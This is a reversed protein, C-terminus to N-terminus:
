RVVVKKSGIINLGKKPTALRQGSLNYVAGNANQETQVTTIGSPDEVGVIHTFLKWGEAERYKQESGIPVYLTCAEFDIGEFQSPVNEAARTVMSRAETATLSIPESAYVYIARLNECGAFAGDGIKTVTGPITVETLEKNDKFANAAIETVTYTKGDIEVTAPIEVKGEEDPELFHAAVTNDDLVDYPTMEVINKFEKWGDTAEYLAKTGAPVYLTANNPSDYAKTESNWKGFVNNNIAFPESIYSIVRSLNCGLFAQEGIAKVSRPLTISSLNSCFYFAKLGINEVSTGLSISSLNTCSSFACKEIVSVSNPVVVSTIGKRYFAHNKISIVSYGNAEEPINVTGEVSNGVFALQCEKSATSTKIYTVDVGETTQETFVDAGDIINAFDKWGNTTEYKEKAGAPVYLTTVDDYPFTRAYTGKDKGDIAFPEAIQSVISVLNCEAFAGTGISTISNPIVLTQLRWQGRFALSSISTVTNPIITNQCGFLLANTATKIIANCNSRSDYVTNGSEVIMSELDDCVHFAQYGIKRVSSPITLEKIGAQFFASEGIGVVTSPITVSTMLMTYQLAAGAIIRTGEAIDVHGEIESKKGKYGWFVNDKYIFGEPLNEYWATGDFVNTGIELVSNPINFQTLSSCGYFASPGIYEVSSSITVSTLGTCNEFAYGDIYKVNLTNEGNTVTEPIVIEGSYSTDELGIVIAIGSGDKVDPLVYGQIDHWGDTGYKIGDVTFVKGYVSFTIIMTLLLAYFRRMM